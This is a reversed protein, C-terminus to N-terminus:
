LRKGWKPASAFGLSTASQKKAASGLPARWTFGARFEKQSDGEAVAVLWGVDVSLNDRVNWIAGVLGSLTLEQDQEVLFEAVPRVTWRWPGELIVGGGGGVHHEHTLELSGNVHMTMEPWRQSLLGAISAGVGSDIGIGPLLLGVELGVSPGPRDQLSGPRLVHKVSLATDRLTYLREDDGQVRFFQRGEVVLEWRNAIGFNLIASPAVLFRGESDVFFGVPGCELELEGRDVVSADTLNFPRFAFVPRALLCVSVGVLVVPWISSTRRRDILECALTVNRVM